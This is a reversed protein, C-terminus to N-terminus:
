FSIGGGGLLSGLIGIVMTLIEFVGSLFDLSGLFNFFNELSSYQDSEGCITCIGGENFEHYEFDCQEGCKECIFWHGNEDHQIKGGGKHEVTLTAETSYVVYDKDGDNFELVYRVTAGDYEAGLKTGNEYKSFDEAKAAKIEAYFADVAYDGDTFAPISDDVYLPKDPCIVVNKAIETFEPGNIGEFVPKAAFASVSVASLLMLVSLIVALTKKM